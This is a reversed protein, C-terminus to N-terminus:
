VFMSLCGADADWWVGCRILEVMQEPTAARDLEDPDVGLWIQDHEASVVMDGTSPVLEDLLMFAHLDHRQSRKGEVRKFKMSEQEAYPKEDDAACAEEFTM